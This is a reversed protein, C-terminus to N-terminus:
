GQLVIHPMAVFGNPLIDPDIVQYQEPDLNTKAFLKVMNMTGLDSNMIAIGGQGLADLARPIFRKIREFDFDSPGFMNAVLVDVDDMQDLAELGDGEVGTVNELLEAIKTATRRDNSTIESGTVLIDGTRSVAFQDLAVLSPGDGTGFEFVRNVDERILGLSEAVGIAGAVQFAPIFSDVEYGFFGEFFRAEELDFWEPTQFM